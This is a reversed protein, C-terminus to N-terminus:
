LDSKVEIHAALAKEFRNCHGVKFGAIDALAERTLEGRSQADLLDQLTVFGGDDRLKSVFTSILANDFGDFAIPLWAKIMWKDLPVSASLLQDISEHQNSPFDNSDYMNLENQHNVYIDNNLPQPSSSDFGGRISSSFLSGMGGSDTTISPQYDALSRDSDTMCTSSSFPSGLDKSKVFLGRLDNSNEVSREDHSDSRLSFDAVGFNFESDKHFDLLPQSTTSHRKNLKNDRNYDRQSLSNWDLPIDDSFDENTDNNGSLRNFQQREYSSKDDRNQFSQFQDRFPGRGIMRSTDNPDNTSRRQDLNERGMDTLYERTMNYSNNRSGQKQNSIHQNSTIQQNRIGPNGLRAKWESHANLIQLQKQAVTMEQNHHSVSNVGKQSMRGFEYSENHQDSVKINEPQDLDMKQFHTNVELRRGDNLSDVITARLANGEGSMIFRNIPDGRMVDVLKVSAPVGSYVLQIIIINIMVLAVIIV